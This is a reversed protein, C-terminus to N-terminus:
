TILTKIQIMKNCASPPVIEHTSSPFKSHFFDHWQFLKWWYGRSYVRGPHKPWKASGDDQPLLEDDM